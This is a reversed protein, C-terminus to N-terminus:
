QPSQYRPLWFDAMEQAEKETDAIFWQSVDAGPAKARERETNVQDASYPGMPTPSGDKLKFAFWYRNVM